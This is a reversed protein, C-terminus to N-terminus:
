TPAGHPYIGILHDNDEALEADLEHRGCACFFFLDRSGFPTSFSHVFAVGAPRCSFGADLTVRSGGKLASLRAYEVGATDHTSAM